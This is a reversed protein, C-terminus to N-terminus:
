NLIKNHKEFAKSIANGIQIRNASAVDSNLLKVENQIANTKKMALTLEKSFDLQKKTQAKKNKEFQDRL